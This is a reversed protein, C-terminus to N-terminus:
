LEFGRPRGGRQITNVPLAGAHWAHRAHLRIAEAILPLVSGWAARCLEHPCANCLFLSVFPSHLAHAGAAM